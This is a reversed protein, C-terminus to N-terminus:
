NRETAVDVAEIETATPMSALAGHRTTALAGAVVARQLAVRRSVGASLAAAFAGCFADGAGTADVADVRHAALRETKDGDFWECGQDGRTVVVAAAGSRLLAEVDGGLAALEHENPMLVDVLELLAADLPLAPAPDLITKAGVSRAASFAARVTELPVELQAVVVDGATIGAGVLDSTALLANALPAVTIQGIGDPRVSILAHGTALAAAVRVASVDVGESALTKLAWRGADDDGVCGVLRVKAGQRAAAVAANAGKGGLARELTTGLVTEGPAPLHEVRIVIDVNVSGVVVVAV